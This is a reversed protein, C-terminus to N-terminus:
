RLMLGDIKKFDKFNSTSLTLDNLLATAAIMSDVIDIKYLSRIKGGLRATPLNLPLVTLGSLVSELSLMTQKSEWVKTGAFLEAYTLVSIFLHTQLASLQFLVTKEKEQLRLYDIIVSTDLLYSTSM